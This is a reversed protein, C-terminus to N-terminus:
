AMALIDPLAKAFPTPQVFLNLQRLRKTSLHCDYPRPVSPPHTSAQCLMSDLGLCKAIHLAMLYKTMAEQGSYHFIGRLNGGIHPMMLLLQKAVDTTLTPYRIALDDIELSQTKTALLNTALITVASKRLDNTPGYLIPVRLIAVHEFTELLKEAAAKQRGYHNLPRPQADVEYPANTGNFVYDTSLHIMPIGFRALHYPLDINIARVEPTDTECREPNRQAACNLIYTPKESIILHKIVDPNTLECIDHTPAVVNYGAARFVEVCVHGLLGSGGTILIKDKM